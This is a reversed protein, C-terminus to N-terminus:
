AASLAPTRPAERMLWLQAERLAELRSMGKESWLNRYFRIMLNRTATDSVNWLSAVTTRAGTVQFARQLGLLGEGGASEGLGTECASLTALEVDSLDLASVELATLIGDDHEATVPRNAGALVLGSLLAPNHGRMRSENLRSLSESGPATAQAAGAKPIEPPAFFGHTAFHLYRCQPALQRVRAETAETSTLRYIPAAQAAVERPQDFRRRYVEEVATVEAKTGALPKWSGAGHGGRPAARSIGALHTEGSDVKDVPSAIPTPRENAGPEADFNVDGVLLLSPAAGAASESPPASKRTLLEPLLQPVPIVAM